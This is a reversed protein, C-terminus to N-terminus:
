SSRSARCSPSVYITVAGGVGGPDITLRGRRASWERPTEWRGAASRRGATSRPTRSEYTSADCSRRCSVRCTKFIKLSHDELDEAVDVGQDLVESLAFTDVEGGTRTRHAVGVLARRRQDLANVRNQWIKAPYLILFADDQVRDCDFIISTRLPLGIVESM